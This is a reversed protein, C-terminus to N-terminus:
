QGSLVNIGTILDIAYALQNDQGKLKAAAEQEAREEEIQKREDETLGDNSIASRLDAETRRARTEEAYSVGRCRFPRDGRRDIDPEFEWRKAGTGPDLAIVRNFPTCYVLSAGATAPLLIPTSQTSTKSMEQGYSEMDGSRFTWAVRLGAVNGTNIQAAKSFHRGGQDGGYYLWDGEDAQAPATTVALMLAMKLPFGNM